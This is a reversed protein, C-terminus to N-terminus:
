RASHFLKMADAPSSSKAVPTVYFVKVKYTYTTQSTNQVNAITVNYETDSTIGDPFNGQPEWVIRADPAGTQASRNIITCPISNGSADTMTVTATNFKGGTISFSWRPFVLSSPIYGNPPYAVYALSTTTGNLNEGWRLCDAGIKKTADYVSGSGMASLKPYLIWARHGTSENGTGPDEIYGSVANVTHNAKDASYGWSIAINGSNAAAYAGSTYCTGSASPYHTLTENALMYLAAEQCSQNQDSNLTINDPLGVLRRFYNVRQIAKQQASTSITGALCGAKSGTWLIDNVASGLYNDNYDKKAKELDTLVVADDDDNDEDKSCSFLTTAIILTALLIRLKNM